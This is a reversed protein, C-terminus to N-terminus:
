KKLYYESWSSRCTSVCVKWVRREETRIPSRLADIEDYREKLSLHCALVIARHDPSLRGLFLEILVAEGAVLYALAAALCLEPSEIMRERPVSALWGLVRELEGTTVIELLNRSM